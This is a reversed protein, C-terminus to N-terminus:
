MSKSQFHLFLKTLAIELKTGQKTSVPILIWLDYLNMCVMRDSLDKKHLLVLIRAYSLIGGYM